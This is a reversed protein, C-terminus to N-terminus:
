GAYEVNAKTSEHKWTWFNSNEIEKQLPKKKKLKKIKFLSNENMDAKDKSYLM